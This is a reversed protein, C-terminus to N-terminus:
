IDRDGFNVSPNQVGIVHGPRSAIDISGRAEMAAKSRKRADVKSYNQPIYYGNEDVNKELSRGMEPTIPKPTSPSRRQEYAPRSPAAEPIDFNPSQMLYAREKLSEIYARRQHAKDFHPGNM